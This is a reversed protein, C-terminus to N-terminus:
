EVEKLEFELPYFCANLVFLESGSDIVTPEIIKNHENIVVLFGYATETYDVLTKKDVTLMFTNGPKVLIKM